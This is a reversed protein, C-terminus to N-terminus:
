FKLLANEVKQYLQKGQFDDQENRLVVLAEELLKKAEDNNSKDSKRRQLEILANHKEILLIATYVPIRISSPDLIKVIKL